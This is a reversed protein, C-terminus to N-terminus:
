VPDVVTLAPVSLAPLVLLKPLLLATVTAAPAVM